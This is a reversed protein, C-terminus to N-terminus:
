LNDAFTTIAKYLDRANLAFNQGHGSGEQVFLSIDTKPNPFASKQGGRAFTDTCNGACFFLDREAPALLLKGVYKDAVSPQAFASLFDVISYPQAIKYSYEAAPVEYDEAGLFAETFAFKDAFSLWGNDFSNAFQPRADGTLTSVIRSAFVSLGFGSVSAAPDAPTPFSFGTLVAGEVLEPHRGLILNSIM